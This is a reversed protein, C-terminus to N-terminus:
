PTSRKVSPAIAALLGLIALGVSAVLIAGTKLSTFTSAQVVQEATFAHPGAALLAAVSANEALDLSAALVAFAVVAWVLPMVLPLGHRSIREGALWAWVSLTLGLLIPFVTDWRHQVGIYFGAGDEGLNLLIQRATSVDYGWSMTDFLPRWGNMAWLPRWSTGLMGIIVVLTAVTLTWALIKV